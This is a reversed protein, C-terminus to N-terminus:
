VGLLIFVPWDVLEAPSFPHRPEIARLPVTQKLKSGTLIPLDLCAGLCRCSPGPGRVNVTGRMPTGM